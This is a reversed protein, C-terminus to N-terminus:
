QRRHHGEHGAWINRAICLLDLRSRLIGATSTPFRDTVEPGAAGLGWKRKNAAVQRADPRVKDAHEPVRFAHMLGVISANHAVDAAFVAPVAEDEYIAEWPCEPECAGCNICEEPHIYLQNPFRARDEGTYAYICDVPCV